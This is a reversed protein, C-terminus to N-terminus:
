KKWRKLLPFFKKMNNIAEEKAVPQAADKNFEDLFQICHDIMGDMTFNNTFTGDKYCYICYDKNSQGDGETGSEVDATLPMGCSQCYTIEM